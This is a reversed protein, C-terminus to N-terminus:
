LSRPAAWRAIVDSLQHRSYPKTIYDNMGCAFCTDRDGQVVNATVAIVPLDQWRPNSRIRRTTEYGDLVPMQCDMLVLDYPQRNLADLALQGNDAMDVRHGMRKLLAGAVIQNVNNDEVLLISLGQPPEGSGESAKASSQAPKPWGALVPNDAPPETILNTGTTITREPQTIGRAPQELDPGPPSHVPLPLSVTFTTGQHEESDVRIEGQMREILQRCLALGLGTGGYLRTTHANAQVFPSFIHAIGAESIGIGTDTVALVMRKNSYSATVQVQGADTFKIANSLLNNLIQRIRTPDGCFWGPFGTGSSAALSIGKRSAQQSHLAM